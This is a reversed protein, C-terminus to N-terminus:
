GSLAELSAGIFAFTRQCDVPRAGVGGAVAKLVQLNTYGLDTDRNLKEVIAVTFDGLSAESNTCGAEIQRPARRYPEVRPDDEGSPLGASAPLDIVYLKHATSHSGVSGCGVVVVSTAVVLSRGSSRVLAELSESGIRIV